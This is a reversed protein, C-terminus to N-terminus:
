TINNIKSINKHKQGEMHTDYYQKCFFVQDCCNCYYKCKMREEKSSHQSLIHLKLSWHTKSVYNCNTCKHEKHKGERKHKETNIHKLWESPFNTYYNCVNCIYKKQEM